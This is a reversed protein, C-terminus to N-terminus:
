PTVVDGPPASKDENAPPPAPENSGADSGGSGSSASPVPSSSGSPAGTSGGSSSSSRGISAVTDAVAQAIRRFILIPVTFKAAALPTGASVQVSQGSGLIVERGPQLRHRVGVSGNDVYVFTEDTSAVDVEFVTGRISIVATPTTVKYSPSENTLHQIHFRIKGLVIDVLDQWNFRNAQLIVRSNPFVEIRSRDSFEIEAFGDPGTVITQGARVSQDPMLVWLEGSREVSVRGSLTLIIASTPGFQAHGRQPLAFATTLIMGFLFLRLTSDMRNRIPNIISMDFGYM